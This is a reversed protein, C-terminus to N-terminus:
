GLEGFGNPRMGLQNHAERLLEKSVARIPDEPALSNEAFPVLHELLRTAKHVQGGVLYAKGLWCETTMRSFIGKALTRTETRLSSEFLKIAKQIRGNDLYARALYYDMMPPYRSKKDPEVIRGQVQLISEILRIAKRMQGNALYARVLYYETVPRKLSGENPEVIRTKVKLVSELLRTAIQIQGRDLYARALWEESDLRNQDEEELMRSRIKVVPELLEIAKSTHGHSFYARALEYESSLREPDEKPLTKQKVDLVSEYLEIAQQVQGDRYYLYALMRYSALRQPSDKDLTRRRSEVVSKCLKIAERNRGGVCYAVALEHKANLRSPDDSDFIGKQTEVLCELLTTAEEIRGDGRYASALNHEIALRDPATRHRMERIAKVVPELIEIALQTRGLANYVAALNSKYICLTGFNETMCGPDWQCAQEHYRASEILRRDSSLCLGVKDFLEYRSQGSQSGSGHLMRTAHPLYERWLHRSPWNDDPFIEALHSIALAMAAEGNQQQYRWSRTAIHVLSHMDFMDTDGRRTLSSYGCLLALAEETELSRCDPLISQPIAKPEIFSLFYLINTACENSDQIRDLSVLWTTGVANRSGHYRTTDRFERSLLNMTDEEARRLLELYRQIPIRTRNLYAAAQAIALPLYELEHLLDEVLDGDQPDIKAILLSCLLIRSDEQPLELLTIVDPQAFDAAVENSRTTMVVLGEDSKPLYDIVGVKEFSGFVLEQDDANDVILLWKGAMASSLHECVAKKVNDDGKKHLGLKGAIDAYSQEVTSDSVLVVWFISYEPYREQVRYAFQLAVQTKGVGGLGVIAM